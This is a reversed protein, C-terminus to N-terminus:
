KLEIKIAEEFKEFPIINLIKLFAGILAVNAGLPTGIEKISIQTADVGYVNEYHENHTNILVKTDKKKGKLTEEESITEDLIIIYDPEFIYGRTNVGKKDFRVFSLVPAGKREAGYLSFDQTKYGAVFAARGLIMAAKRIGQGGRGHLRVEILNSAGNKKKFINYSKKNIFRIVM